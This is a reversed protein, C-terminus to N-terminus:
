RRRLVWAKWARELTPLDCEYVGRVADLLARQADTEPATHMLRACFDTFKKQGLGLLYRVLSWSQLRIKQTLGREPTATLAGIQGSKGSAVLDRVTQERDRPADDGPPLTAADDRTKRTMRTLRHEMYHAIGVKLWAPLGGEMRRHRELLKLTASFTFRRLLQEESADSLRIVAIPGSELVAGALPWTKPALIHNSFADHGSETSFLFLEIRPHPLPSYGSGRRPLRGDRGLGLLDAVAAEVNLLRTAWLHALETSTLKGAKPAFSPLFGGLRAREVPHLSKVRDPALMSVLTWRDTSIIEPRQGSIRTLWPRVAALDKGMLQSTLGARGGPVIQKGEEVLSRALYPAAIIPGDKGKRKPFPAMRTAGLDFKHSPDGRLELGAPISRQGAASGACVLFVLVSPALRMM